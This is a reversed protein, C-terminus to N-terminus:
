RAIPNALQDVEVILTRVKSLGHRPEPVGDTWSRLLKASASALARRLTQHRAM